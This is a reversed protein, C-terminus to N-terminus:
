QFLPLFIGMKVQWVLVQVEAICIVYMNCIELVYHLSLMNCHEAQKQSSPNKADM